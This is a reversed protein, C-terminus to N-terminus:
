FSADNLKWYADTGKFKENENAHDLATKGDKDKAKADAGADLLAIIIEPNPNEQVAYMLATLGNRGQAQLDCGVKILQNTIALNPNHRAAYILANAGFKDRAKINAGADILLAAFSRGASQPEMRRASEIQQNDAFGRDIALSALDSEPRSEEEPTWLESLADGPRIASPSSDPTPADVKGLGSGALDPRHLAGDSSGQSRTRPASVPTDGDRESSIGLDNMLEDFRFNSM